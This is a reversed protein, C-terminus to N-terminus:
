DRDSKESFKNEKEREVEDRIKKENFNEKNRM